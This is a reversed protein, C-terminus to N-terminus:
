DDILEGHNKEVICYEIIFMRASNAKLPCTLVCRKTEIQFILNAIALTHQTLTKDIGLTDHRM